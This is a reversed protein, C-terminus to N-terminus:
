WLTNATEMDTTTLRGEGHAVPCYIPEDLGATFLCPSHSNPQLYVWRCEFNGSLNHALTVRRNSGDPLGPLLGAKLLAQFGNCIGLVPRGEAIFRSLSEGLRHQLNIALLTGAGLDDGYSFGGPVVLMHYDELRSEGTLIQNLGVIQPEAGALECALAAERERNTGKATLVLVRRPGVRASHTPLNSRAPRNESVQEGKSVNIEKDVNDVNTINDVDEVPAASVRRWRAELDNVPLK